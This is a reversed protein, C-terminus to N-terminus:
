SGQERSATIELTDPLQSGSLTRDTSQWTFKDNTLKRLVNKARAISGDAQVARTDEFWTDGVRVWKGQGYGGGPAFNWSVIQRSEPDVGIIWLDNNFHDDNPDKSTIKIFHHSPDWAGMLQMSGRDGGANWKGVLWGLDAISARLPEVVSTETVNLMKWQGDKKVHVVTYRGVNEPISNRLLTCTGEEVAVDSSPFRISDISIQMPQSGFNFFYSRLVKEINARGHTVRGNAESYDGDASWMNALATANGHEFQKAYEKAEQRIEADDASTDHTQTSAFSSQASAALCLSSSLFINLLRMNTAM